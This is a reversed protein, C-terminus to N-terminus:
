YRKTIKVPRWSASLVLVNFLLKTVTVSQLSEESVYYSHEQHSANSESEAPTSFVASFM